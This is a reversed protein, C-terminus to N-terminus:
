SAFIRKKSFIYNLIIVIINSGVKVGFEWLKDPITMLPSGIMEVLTVVIIEDLIGTMLRYFAFTLFERIINSVTSHFVWKRNTVYAVIVSVLWVYPMKM